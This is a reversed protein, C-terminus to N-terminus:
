GLLRVDRIIEVSFHDNIKRILEHRQEFLQSRLAANTLRVRLVGDEVEVSRTMNAILPGMIQSWQEILQSQLVPKELGEERLYQTIVSAISVSRSM